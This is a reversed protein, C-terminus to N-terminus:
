TTVSCKEPDRSDVCDFASEVDGKGVDDTSTREMRGPWRGNAVRRAQVVCTARKRNGNPPVADLMEFRSRTIWFPDRRNELLESSEPV